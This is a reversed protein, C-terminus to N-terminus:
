SAKLTKEEVPKETLRCSFNSDGVPVILLPM